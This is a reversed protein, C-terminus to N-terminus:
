SPGLVYIHSSLKGLMRYVHWYADALKIDYTSQGFEGIYRGPERLLHAIATLERAAKGDRQEAWEVTESGLEIRDIVCM